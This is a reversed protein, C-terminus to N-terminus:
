LSAVPDLLLITPGGGDDNVRRIGRGRQGVSSPPFVRRDIATWEDVVIERWSKEAPQGAAGLANNNVLQWEDNPLWKERHSIALKTRLTAGGGLDKSYHGWLRIQASASIEWISTHSSYPLFIDYVYEIWCSSSNMKAMQGRRWGLLPGFESGKPQGCICFPPYSSHHHHSTAWWRRETLCDVLHGCKEFKVIWWRSDNTESVSLVVICRRAIASLIDKTWSM